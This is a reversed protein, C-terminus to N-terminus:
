ATRSRPTLSTPTSRALPQSWTGGVPRGSTPSSNTQSQPTPLSRPPSRMADTGAIWILHGIGRIALARETPRQARLRSELAWPPCILILKRALEPHREAIATAVLAGRSHGVLVAPGEILEAAEDADREISDSDALDLSYVRARTEILPLVRDWAHHSGGLGHILVVPPGDPPGATLAGAAM